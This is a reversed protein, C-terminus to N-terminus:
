FLWMAGTLVVAMIVLTEGVVLAISQPPVGVIRKLETRIGVAAIATLLAWKSISWCLSQLWAPILGFSNAVALALFALVFLPIIPPSKGDQEKFVGLGRLLLTLVLIFPALLSVRILKVTTSTEGVEESVSFGAGVVQAVDHITGGFFVGAALDSLDLKRALIPYIIMALTSLLTVAFVTFTLNRESYRNSPLVASIALAASAGCIAVAGSTLVALRWGRGLARAGLLGFGITAVLAVVILGVVSPGLGAFVEFSIRAGLLAVGIRLLNRTAFSAGPVCRQGEAVLFHLSLGLLLAMFM